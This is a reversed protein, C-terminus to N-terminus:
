RRVLLLGDIIVYGDAEDSVLVGQPSGNDFEFTGLLQPTSGPLSQDLRIWPSTGNRHFVRFPANTAMLSLRPHDVKRAFVDYTGPPLFPQGSVRDLRFAARHQGTGPRRYRLSGGFAGGYSASRWNGQVIVFSPDIEDISIEASLERFAYVVGDTDFTVCAINPSGNGDLDGIQVHMVDGATSFTFVPSGTAGDLVYLIQDDSGAVVDLTGDETVDAVRVVNVDGGTLHSWLESGTTGDFAHVSRDTSNGAAVLEHTGDGQLDGHSLGYDVNSAFASSWFPTRAVGDVVLIQTQTAIGIDLTGDNDADLVEVHRVSSLGTVQWLLSGDTGDLVMVKQGPFGVAAVVDLPGLGNMQALEVEEIDGGLNMSWLLLGTPGDIAYVTEDDSGAIVDDAGDGDLDAVQLCKRYIQDGPTTLQWQPSAKAGDIATVTDDNGAVVVDVQGNGDFDGTAVAYLNETGTWRWLEAGTAGDIAIAQDMLSSVAVVDQALDGNLDGLALGNGYEGFDLEWLLPSDSTRLAWIGKAPDPPSGSTEASGGGAVDAIGDGDFDGAAVSSITGAVSYYWTKAGSAGDVVQVRDFTAALVNLTGDGVVDAFALDRVYGDLPSSIWMEVNSGGDFAVIRYNGLFNGVVLDIDTDQDLDHAHLFIDGNTHDLPGMMYQWELAGTLGNRVEVVGQDASSVLGFIAEVAGDGDIDELLVDLAISPVTRGWITSGDTGDLVGHFNDFGALYEHAYGVDDIGDGNVDGCEVANVWLSGILRRWLLAGTEGDLAYVYDDFSGVVVDPFADGNLNGTAVDQNTAGVPYTWLPSGDTGDIAHVRGDPTTSGASAGAIVDMVGDQNLDALTMSRVGDQLLYTWLATGTSGDVAHVRSPADFASNSYEGGIVDPVGDGNLDATEVHNVHLGPDYIWIPDGSLQALAGPCCSLVLLGLLPITVRAM